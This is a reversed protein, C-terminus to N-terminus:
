DILKGSFTSAELGVALAMRARGGSESPQYLWGTGTENIPPHDIEPKVEHVEVVYLPGSLGLALTLPLQISLAPFVAGALTARLYSAAGGVMVPHVAERRGSWLPQYLWGTVNLKV